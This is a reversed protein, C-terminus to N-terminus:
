DGSSSLSELFEYAREVSKGDDLHTGFMKLLTNTSEVPQFREERFYTRMLGLYEDLGDAYAVRESWMEQNSPHWDDAWPWTLEYGCFLIPRDTTLMELFTTSPYDTMFMDAMPLVSQFSESIAICNKPKSDM